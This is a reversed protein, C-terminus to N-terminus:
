SKRAKKTGKGQFVQYDMSSTTPIGHPILHIEKNPTSFDYEQNYSIKFLVLNSTCIMCCSNKEIIDKEYVKNCM